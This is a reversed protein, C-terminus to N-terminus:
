RKAYDIRAEYWTGDIRVVLTGIPAEGAGHWYDVRYGFDTASIVSPLPKRAPSPAPPVQAKPAQAKPAPPPTAQAHASPVIQMGGLSLWVLCAAIITLMVKTYRDSRMRNEVPSFLM